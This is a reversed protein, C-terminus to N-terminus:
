RVACRCLFRGHSDDMATWNGARLTRLGRGRDKGM